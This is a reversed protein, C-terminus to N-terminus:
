RTLGKLQVTPAAQLVRDIIRRSVKDFKITKNMEIKAAKRANTPFRERELRFVGDKGSQLVLYNGPHLEMRRVNAYYVVTNGCVLYRMGLSIRRKPWLFAAVFGGIFALMIGPPGFVYIALALFVLFGLGFAWKVKSSVLRDSHQYKFVAVNPTAM